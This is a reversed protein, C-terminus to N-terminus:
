DPAYEFLYVDEPITVYCDKNTDTVHNGWVVFSASIRPKQLFYDRLFALTDEQGSKLDYISISANCELYSTDAADWVIFDGFIAPELEDRTYDNSIQEESCLGTQTNFECYFINFFNGFRQDQWVIRSEWIDPSYQNSDLPGSVVLNGNIVPNEIDYFYIDGDWENGDTNRGDQWVILNDFIAPAEQPAPLDTIRTEEGTLINYLYIDSEGHRYDSWVLYNGSIQPERQTSNSPEDTILIGNEIPNQIDYLYIDYNGNRQDEWAIYDGSIAPNLPNAIQNTIQKQALCANIGPDYECLYIDASENNLQWYVIRNGSIDPYGQSEPDFTIQIPSDDIPGIHPRIFNVAFVFSIGLNFMLFSM